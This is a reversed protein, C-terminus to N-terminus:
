KLVLHLYTILEHIRIPTQSATPMAIRSESAMETLKCIFKSVDSASILNNFYSNPSHIEINQGEVMKQIVSDIWNRRHNSGIIAPLRLIHIEKVKSALLYKESL